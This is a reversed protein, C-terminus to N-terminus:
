AGSWLPFDRPNEGNLIVNQVTAKSFILVLYTKRLLCPRSGKTTTVEAPSGSVLGHVPIEVMNRLSLQKWTCLVTAARLSM